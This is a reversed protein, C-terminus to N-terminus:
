DNRAKKIKVKKLKPNSRTDIFTLLYVQKLSENIEYILLNHKSIIVEFVNQKKSFRFLYPSRELLSLIENTKELFNFIDSEYWNDNLYEIIKDYVRASESSWIIQYAM